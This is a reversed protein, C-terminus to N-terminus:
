LDFATAARMLLQYESFPLKRIASLVAEKAGRTDLVCWSDLTEGSIALLALTHILVRGNARCAASVRDTISATEVPEVGAPQVVRVDNAWAEVKNVREHVTFRAHIVDGEVIERQDRRYPFVHVWWSGTSNEVRVRMKHENGKVVHVVTLVRATGVTPSGLGFTGFDAAELHQVM